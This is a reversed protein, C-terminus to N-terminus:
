KFVSFHKSKSTKPKKNTKKTQRRKRKHPKDTQKTAKHTESETGNIVQNATIGGTPDVMYFGQNKPVKGAAMDKFHKIYM